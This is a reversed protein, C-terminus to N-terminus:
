FNEAQRLVTKGCGAINRCNTVTAIHYPIGVYETFGSLVTPVAKGIWLSRRSYSGSELLLSVSTALRTTVQQSM